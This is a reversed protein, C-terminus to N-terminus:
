HDFDCKRQLRGTLLALLHAVYGLHGAVLVTHDACDALVCFSACTVLYKLTRRRRAELELYPKNMKLPHTRVGGGKSLRYSISFYALVWYIILKITLKKKKM